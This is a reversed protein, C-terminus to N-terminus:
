IELKRNATQTAAFWARSDLLRIRRLAQQPSVIRPPCSQWLSRPLKSASQPSLWGYLTLLSRLLPEDQDLRRALHSWDIEAGRAYLLNFIDTWDCRDRQVIYLKCWILEEVPIVRLNQDRIALPRARTLWLDDVQARQNAMAWIVDVIVDSRIARYIWKRDYPRRKYYDKFGARNLAAIARARDQPKVYLDIDKTDRWRGTYAAFAFGGGLMFEVGAAKVRDM